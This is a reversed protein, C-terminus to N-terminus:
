SSVSVKSGSTSKRQQKMSVNVQRGYSIASSISWPGSRHFFPILSNRERHGFRMRPTKKHHRWERGSLAPGDARKYHAGNSQRAPPSLSLIRFSRHHRFDCCASPASGRVHDLREGPYKIGFEGQDSQGRARNKNIQALSKNM